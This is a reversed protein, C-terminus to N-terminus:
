MFQSTLGFLLQFFPELSTGKGINQFNTMIQNADTETLEEIKVTNDLSPFTVDELEKMKLSLSLKEDLSEVEVTTNMVWEGNEQVAEAHSDMTYEFYTGNENKFSYKFKLKCKDYSNEFEELTIKGIDEGDILLRATLKDDKTAGLLRIYNEVLEDEYDPVGAMSADLAGEMYYLRLIQTNGEKLDFGKIDRIQCYLNITITEFDKYDYDEIDKIIQNIDDTSAIHGDKQLDKLYIIYGDALEKATSEMITLTYRNVERIIGNANLKGKNKEFYDDKLNDMLYDRTYRYFDLLEKSTMYTEIPGLGDDEEDAVGMDIIKDFLTESQIYGNLNKQFINLDFIRNENESLNFKLAFDENTLDLDAGATINYSIPTDKLFELTGSGAIQVINSETLYDAYSKGDEDFVYNKEVYNYMERIAMKYINIPKFQTLIYYGFAGFGALILVILFASVWKKLKLGEFDKRKADFLYDNDNM